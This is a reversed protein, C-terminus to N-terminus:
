KQRKEMLDFKIDASCEIRTYYKNSLKTEIDASQRGALFGAQM